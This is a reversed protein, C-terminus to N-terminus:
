LSSFRTLTESSSVLTKQKEKEEEGSPCIHIYNPTYIRLKYNPASVINSQIMDYKTPVNSSGVIM